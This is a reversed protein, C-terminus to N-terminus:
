MGAMVKMRPLNYAMLLNKETAIIEDVKARKEEGSMDPDNAVINRHRRLVSLYDEVKGVIGKMAYLKMKDETLYEKLEEIRGERKFMNVSEVVRDVDERFTYFESKYGRGSPDNIFTSLLPMRGIPKGMRNPDAIADTVSLLVGGTTGLYARMLYDVKMPSLGVHGALKALESTNERFQLVAEKPMGVGVIPNGTFFSHNTMVEILPKVLQPALNVGGYASIAADRMGRLFTTNDVPRDTGERSIYQYMREPIVKFLFGVEPAVPIKLNTGPILFNKDREYEDMGKYDDDDGMLMAYLTSLAAIKAGTTAFLLIATKKDATSIGKGQITRYLVDMGQIYANMFPVVHRLMRVAQGNGSRKFNIYEKARHFALVRDGEPMSPSKTEAITQEYIAARVAMDAALSFQELKGWAKHWLNKESIGHRERARQIVHDPMADYAGTIGLAEIEPVNGSLARYFNKMVKSPVAFPHRVGSLLMARMTDQSLQSLAFTPMHTIFGRLMDSSAKFFGLVPGVTDIVSSFAAMDEPNDLLYATREGNKYTFVVRDKNNKLETDVQAQTKLENASPLQELTKTAARNKLGSKVAWVTHGVMNDLVNRIEKSSGEKDLQPLKSLHVLGTRLNGSVELKNSEEEVRTWPVYGINEKWEQVQAPTIRGTDRLFDIIGDNFKTFVTFATRLEPFSNMAELGADIEEQSARVGVIQDRLKKAAAKNGKAEAADAQANIVANNKKLENARQAIFARHALTLAQKSSGLKNGLDSVITTFVRDLTIAGSDDVRDYVEVLGDKGIRIGGRQMLQDAVGAAEQAQAEYIDGRIEGLSDTVKNNFKNTLQERVPAAKDVVAQRFQMPINKASQAKLTIRDVLSKDADQEPENAIGKMRDNLEVAKQGEATLNEAGATKLKYSIRSDAPDYTGKNFVSKIQSPEYVALNKRGNEYMYFGDFGAAKIANQVRPSEIVNWIGRMVDARDEGMLSIQKSLETIHEPNEYDFPKQASVYIPLINRRTPLMDRLLVDLEDQSNTGNKKAIAKAKNSLAEIKKAPLSFLIERAMYDESMFTYDDAFKPDDTVFIAGAQKPRFAEIDQATGHYMVKPTGNANRVVSNGFWKQFSESVTTRLMALPGEVGQALDVIPEPSAHMTELYQKFTENPLYQSNQIKSFFSRLAKGLRSFFKEVISIPKESTTAWRSVQDAYWEDFGRWYNSLEEASGTENHLITQKAGTKARLANVFQRATEGKRAILWKDFENRISSKLEPSANRYVEKEHVHGLEHALTELMSTKSTSGTFTIYYNGDSVKRATGVANPNLLSSGIARFEGTYKDQDVRADDITTIYINAKIGLLNVWGEIIGAIEKPMGASVTVNGKAFSPFPNRAHQKKGENEIEKKAKTLRTQEEPTLFGAPLTSEIDKSVYQNGKTPMYVPQGTASSFGQVLSLGKDQWIVKGNFKSAISEAAKREEPTYTLAPEVAKAAKKAPKKTQAILSDITPQDILDFNNKNTDVLNRAVSFPLGTADMLQKTADKVDFLGDQAAPAAPAPTEELAPPQAETGVDPGGTVAPAAGMGGTVPAEIGAAPTAGQQEVVPVSPENATAIPETSEVVDTTEEAEKVSPETPPNFDFEGQDMFTPSSLFNNVKAIISASRNPNNAFDTLTDQVEARQAPDTLDKGLIAARLKKNTSAVGMAKFDAETIPRAKAAPAVAPAPQTYQQGLQFEPQAEPVYLESTPQAAIEPKYLEPTPRAAIEAQQEAKTMRLFATDAPTVMQGANLRAQISKVREERFMDAQEPTLGPAQAEKEGLVTGEGTKQRPMAPMDFDLGRQEPEPAAGAREVGEVGKSLKKIQSELDTRATNLEDARTLIAQKQEPSIDPTEYQQKLRGMERELVDFQGRMETIQLLRNQQGAEKEEAARYPESPLRFGANETGFMEQQQATGTALTKQKRAEEAAQAVQTAQQQNARSKEIAYGPVSLAGGLVAGGVFNDFYEKRAEPDAITLGAQARELVAQGAETFGEAGATKIAVPGYERFKNAIGATIGNKVIQEAEKESLEIGAKGFIGRLGPIYKLGFVDLAAQFPAAALAPAIDVDKASKGGELQRTINSGFFQTAGATGAALEAASLSLGAATGAVLAEPALAAAVVPAVMYPISRGALGKVYEFPKDSFDAITATQAAKERQKAAFEEAGPVNAVAGIAGFDGLLGQTGAKVNALFGTEPKPALEPFASFIRQKVVDQSLDDPINEVIRGNPLRVNYPM